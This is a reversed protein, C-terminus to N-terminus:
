FQEEGFIIKGGRYLRVDGINCSVKNESDQIIYLYYLLYKM